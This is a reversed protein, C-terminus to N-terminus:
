LTSSGSRSMSPTAGFTQGTARLWKTWPRKSRADHWVNSLHVALPDMGSPVQSLAFSFLRNAEPSDIWFPTRKSDWLPSFDFGAPGAGITSPTPQMRGLNQEPSAALIGTIFSTIEKPLPCIKFSPPAQSPYCLKLLHTLIDAPIHFDRSLSDAIVNLIGRIHQTHLCFKVKLVLLALKRSFHLKPSEDDSFNARFTWGAATTSDTGSFVCDDEKVEGDLVGVWM